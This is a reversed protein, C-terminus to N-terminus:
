FQKSIWEYEERADFSPCAKSSFDKHGYIVANSYLGKLRCLLDELADKQEPTRTDHWATDSGLGGAYAVGISDFNEGKTHAGTRELPRCEHVEGKLDIFFHYGIDSWGREEVHWKRLDEVTVDFDKKTATCHVIIKSIKRM